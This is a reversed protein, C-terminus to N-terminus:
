VDIVSVRRYHATIQGRQCCQHVVHRFRIETPEPKGSISPNTTNRQQVLIM